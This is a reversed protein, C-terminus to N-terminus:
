RSQDLDALNATFASQRVTISQSAKVTYGSGSQERVGPGTWNEGFGPIRGLLPHQIEVANWSGWRWSSLDKPAERGSVSGRVAGGSAGRLESVYYAVMAQASAANREAALSIL